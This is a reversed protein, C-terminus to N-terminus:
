IGPDDHAHLLLGDHRARLPEAWALFRALQERAFAPDDDATAFHTMAGALRLRKGAEPEDNPYLVKSISEM